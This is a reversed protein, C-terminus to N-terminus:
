RAEAAEAAPKGTLADMFAAQVQPMYLNGLHGGGPFVTIRGAFVGELWSLDSKQLIFDDENTFVHIRPDDRMGPEQSYLNAKAFLQEVSERGGDKEAFYPIALEDMYRKLTNSEVEIAFAGHFGGAGGPTLTLTKGGRLSSASIAQMTMARTSLGILFESGDRTFPLTGHQKIKDQDRGQAIVYAKKVAEATRDRREAAPWGLPADFYQDFLGAAYELNVAPNIAVVREFHLAHPDPNKREIEAVFLTAIGGLSYGMLSESTVRGPYRREIDGQIAQLSKYIDQADSPTYGPYTASLATRIFEPNFPNSIIVASYGRKWASEALKVANTATRHSGIGPVIYVLPAPQEQLWLSYPLPAGAGEIGVYANENQSPFNPDDLTTLMIGLSPSPNADTWAIEPIEYNSVKIERNIAWLTRVPLYLDVGSEAMMDYTNIRSSFSNVAFVGFVIGFTNVYLTPSLVTDFVKGVADRGSSPGLLPLFFYFGPGIGWRGFAQGVDEDRTPIGIEKAVDFFGAIGATTNVLFNGTEVGADVVEGQLLLSVFRDPFELNYAFNDISTRVPQPFIARWGIAAPRVAYDVAGKTVTFSGRNVPEIPDNVYQMLEYSDSTTPQYQDQIGMTQVHHTRSETDSTACATSLSAALVLGLAARVKM